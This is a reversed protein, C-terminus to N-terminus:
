DGVASLNGAAPSSADSMLPLGHPVPPPASAYKTLDAFMQTFDLSLNGILCDTVLGRHQPFDMCFDKFSFNQSYFAYVLRRM